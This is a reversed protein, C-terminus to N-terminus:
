EALRKSVVVHARRQGTDNEYAILALHWSSPKWDTSFVLEYASRIRLLYREPLGEENQLRSITARYNAFSTEKKEGAKLALRGDALQNRLDEVLRWITDVEPPRSRGARGFVTIAGGVLLSLSLMVALLRYRRGTM